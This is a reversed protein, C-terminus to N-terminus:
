DIAIVAIFLPNKVLLQVAELVEVVTDPPCRDLDDVYLVVRAPGRPFVKELQDIRAQYEQTNSPPPLLKQSLTALDGKVQHMHGLHKDYSGEKLRDSIFDALSAYINQPLEKEEQKLEKQEQKIEIELQQVTVEINRLEENSQLEEQFEQEFKEELEQTGNEIRKEYQDLVIQAKNVM